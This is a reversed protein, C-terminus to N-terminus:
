INIIRKTESSSSSGDKNENNSDSSKDEKAEEVNLITSQPEPQVITVEKPEPKLESNVLTNQNDLSAPIFPINLSQKPPM